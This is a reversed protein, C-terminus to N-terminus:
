ITVIRIKSPAKGEFKFAHMKELFCYTWNFVLVQFSFFVLDWVISKKLDAHVDIYICSLNLNITGFSANSSTSPFLLVRNPRGSM